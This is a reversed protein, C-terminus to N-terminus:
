FNMNKIKSLTLGHEKLRWELNTLVHNPEQPVRDAIKKYHPLLRKDKVDQLAQLTTHVVQSSSDNLGNIFASIYTAKNQLKGLTYFASRRIELDDNLTMPVILPGYDINTEDLLYTAFRFTERDTILHIHQTIHELWEESKERAYWCVFQYVHLLNGYTALYPKAVEYSFKTLIQLWEKKYNETALQYENEFIKLHATDIYVKSLIGALCDSKIAEDVASRNKELLTQVDDGMTYGFWGKRDDLLEGSIVENLWREYWDLFNDEFTFKPKQRDQDLYVVKGAHPGNLVLGHIYSCGQTGIPMIGAFMNGMAVDFDEDSINDDDILKTLETWYEDTLYPFIKVPHSLYMPECLEDLSEGLPYIGYFPGAASQLHSTGGNGIQCLFAKYCAPLTIHHEDEFQRVVSEAIPKNIHYKHSTAGFVKRASDKKDAIKLKKKIREIQEGFPQM